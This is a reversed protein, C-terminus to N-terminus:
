RRLSRDTVAAPAARSESSLRASPPRINRSSDGSSAAMITVAMMAPPPARSVSTSVM